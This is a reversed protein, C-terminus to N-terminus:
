WAAHSCLMLRVRMRGTSAPMAALTCAGRPGAVLACLMECAHGITLSDCIRHVGVVDLMCAHMGAWLGLYDVGRGVRRTPSM